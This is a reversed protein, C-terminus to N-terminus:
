YCDEMTYSEREEDEEAEMNERFQIIRGSIAPTRRNGRRYGWQGEIEGPQTVRSGVSRLRDEVLDTSEGRSGRNSMPSTEMAVWLAKREAERNDSWKSVDTTPEHGFESLFAGSLGLYFVKDLFGNFTPLGYTSSSTPQTNCGNVEGDARSFTSAMTPGPDSGTAFSDKRCSRLCEYEQRWYVGWDKRDTSPPHGFVEKFLGDESPDMAPQSMAVQKMAQRYKRTLTGEEVFLQKPITAVRQNLWLKTQRQLEKMFPAHPHCGNLHEQADSGIMVEGDMICQKSMSRYMDMNFFRRVALSGPQECLWKIADLKFNMDEKEGKKNLIYSRDALLCAEWWGPFYHLDVLIRYRSSKDEVDAMFGNSPLWMTGTMNRMGQMSPSEQQVTQKFLTKSICEQRWKENAFDDWAPRNMGLVGKATLEAFNFGFIEKQSKNKCRKAAKKPQYSIADVNDGLKKHVTEIAPLVRWAKLTADNAESQHIVKMTAPREGHSYDSWGMTRALLIEDRRPTLCFLKRFTSPCVAVVQFLMTSPDSMCLPVRVFRLHRMEPDYMSLLYHDLQKRDRAQILANAYGARLHTQRDLRSFPSVPPFSEYCSPSFILERCCECAREGVKREKWGGCEEKIYAAELVEDADALNNGEEFPSNGEYCDWMGRMSEEALSVVDREVFRGEGAYKSM